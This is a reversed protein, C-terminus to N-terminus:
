SEGRKLLIINGIDNLTGFNEATLDDMEFEVSYAREIFTILEQIGMSDILGDEILHTDPAVETDIREKFYRVLEEEINMRKQEQEKGKFFISDMFSRKVM